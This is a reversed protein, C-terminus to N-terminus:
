IYIEQINKNIQYSPMEQYQFLSNIATGTHLSAEGFNAKVKLIVKM